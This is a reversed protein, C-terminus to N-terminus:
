ASNKDSTQRVDTQRDRAYIPRLDLVSLGLFVLVPVSTAWMVRSESVVKLTLPWPWWAAKSVATNARWTAAATPMLVHQGHSVTAVNDDARRRLASRRGPSLLPAPYVMAAARMCSTILVNKSVARIICCLKLAVAKLSFVQFRCLPMIYFLVVSYGYDIAYAVLTFLVFTFSM